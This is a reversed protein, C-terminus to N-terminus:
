RKADFEPADSLVSFSGDSELVIATVAALDAYGDRRAVQLLEDASVREKLMASALFGHRYLLTPEAKVLGELRESRSIAWAVVFQMGLLLAMAALGEALAVDSSLLVTALTSGLAITVILDFANLKALSRKGAVRLMGILLVYAPVGVLIVRLLGSWDDFFM